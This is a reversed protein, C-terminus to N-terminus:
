KRAGYKKLLARMEKNDMDLALQLPRRGSGDKGNVEAGQSVLFKVMERHGGLVAWHLPTAQVERDLAQVAAMHKLLVRATDVHGERAALILATAGCRDQAEINAGHVLLLEVMAPNHDFVAMHLPTAGTSDPEGPSAGHELLLQAIEQENIMVARHLPSKEGPAPTKLMDEHVELLAKVAASNGLAVAELLAEQPSKEAPTGTTIAFSIVLWPPVPMLPRIFISSGPNIGGPDRYEGKRLGCLLHSGEPTHVLAQVEM